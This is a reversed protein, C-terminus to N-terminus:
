KVITPTFTWTWGANATGPGFKDVFSKGDPSINDGGAKGMALLMALPVKLVESSPESKAAVKEWTAGCSRSASNPLLPAEGAPYDRRSAMIIGPASMRLMEDAQDKLSLVTMFEFAGNVKPAPCELGPVIAGVKTPFNRIVPTGVLKNEEQNWDFEIEVHDTVAAESRPLIILTGSFDGVARYHVIKTQTWKLMADTDQASAPRACGVVMLAFLLRKM